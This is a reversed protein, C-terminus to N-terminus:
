LRGVRREVPIAGAYRTLGTVPLTLGCLSWPGGNTAIRAAKARRWWALRMRATTAYIGGAANRRGDNAIEDVLAM